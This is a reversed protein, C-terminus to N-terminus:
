RGNKDMETWKQGNSRRANTNFADQELLLKVALLLLAIGLPFQYFRDHILDPSAKSSQVVTAEQKYDFAIEKALARMSQGSAEFLKGRGADTIAKLLPRELRSLVPKGEFTVNPVIGGRESGVAVVFLRVHNEENMKQITKQLLDIKKQREAGKLSELSTDGGDSLLILSKEVANSEGDYQKRMQAFTEVLNTGATGAENIQLQRLMLRVYLYDYTPPSLQLLQNTFAYLSVSEGQLGSILEDAIEKAVDLRKKQNPLDGVGMSASADILLTIEHPKRKHIRESSEKKDSSLYRGYGVPDMLALTLFVWALCFLSTKVWFIAPSRGRILDKWLNISAFDHKKKELYLFLYWYIGLFLLILFILYAASPFQYLIDKTM